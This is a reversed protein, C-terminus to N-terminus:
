QHLSKAFSIAAKGVIRLQSITLDCTELEHFIQRYIKNRETDHIKSGASPKAEGTLLAWEPLGLSNEIKRITELKPSSKGLEIRSIQDKTIGTRISLELQSMRVKRRVTAIRRGLPLGIINTETSGTMVHGKQEQGDNYRFM